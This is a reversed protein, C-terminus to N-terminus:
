AYCFEKEGHDLLMASLGLALLAPVVLLKVLSQIVVIFLCICAFIVGVAIILVPTVYYAWSRRITSFSMSLTKSFNRRFFFCFLIFTNVM